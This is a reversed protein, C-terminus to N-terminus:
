RRIGVPIRAVERIIERGELRREGLFVPSAM